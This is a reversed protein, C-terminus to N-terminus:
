ARRPTVEATALVTAVAEVLLRHEVAHVREEYSVLSDDVEFPVAETLIVPGDDVGEDPVYHVMVGGETIAGARWAEYAAEIAGLGPFAGPKAPHLNITVHHALFHSTLLRNWGALVVLDPGFSAVTYALDQDYAVRDRGQHPAVLTPVGAMEARELAYVGPRNSVVGVVEADLRGSSCADLIAQLNSGNGSVLVVIRGRGM